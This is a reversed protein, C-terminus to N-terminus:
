HVLEQSVCLIPGIPDRMDPSGAFVRMKSFQYKKMICGYLAYRHLAKCSDGLVSKGGIM